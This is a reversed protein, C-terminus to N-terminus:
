AAAQPHDDCVLDLGAASANSEVQGVLGPSTLPSASLASLYPTMGSTGSNRQGPVQLRPDRLHGGCAAPVLGIGVVSVRLETKGLRRYKM